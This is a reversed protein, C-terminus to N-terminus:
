KVSMEFLVRMNSKAAKSDTDGPTKEHSKPRTEGYGITTIRNKKIGGETVMFKKVEAARRESLRQNYEPKGSMSTYGAVRVSTNPNAKMLAINERLAKMGEPRLTASNFDFHSDELVVFVVPAAVTAPPVAAPAPAPAPTPAPAPAAAAVPKAVPAEHKMPCGFKYTISLRHAVGIDGTPMMAYDFAIQRTWQYGLGLTLGALVGLERNPYSLQYGARLALINAKTDVNGILHEGGFQLRKMAKDQLESSAALLWHKDVAWGAGLRLGSSQDGISGAMKLNSYTVGLDVAPVVKWLLGVDTSFTNYSRADIRSRNAKLAVGGSVNPFFEMGWGVSGTYDGSTYSATEIGNSDAGPINGYNVYGLSAALGGMSGGKGDDKVEGLPAGFVFIEQITGGLGSNHHLAVEKCSMRSLGAPNWLLSASGQEVAVVASGMSMARASGGSQQLPLAQTGVGYATEAASARGGLAAALLVGFAIQSIKM